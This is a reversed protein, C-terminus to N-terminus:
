KVLLIKRFANFEGAQLKVLYTGPELNGANLIVKYRGAPIEQSILRTVVKGSMDYVDLLVFSLRPLDIELNTFFKFPNPYAPQLSYHKPIYDFSNFIGTATEGIGTLKVFDNKDNNYIYITDNVPLTDVPTFTITFTISDGSLILSDAPNYNTTFVPLNNQLRNIVLTDLGNNYIRLTTDSQEGVLVSGFDLISDSLIIEPVRQDFFYCGMDTVTSDPDSPSEPNGSDICPSKTQDSIPFNSWTLHLNGAVPDAFLPDKFINYYVDCSDSNANIQSLIGLGVPINGRFPGYVSNYFDCYAVIVESYNQFYIEYDKQDKFISNMLMM